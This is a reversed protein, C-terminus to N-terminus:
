LIRERPRFDFGREPRDLKSWAGAVWARCIEKQLPTARRKPQISFEFVPRPGMECELARLM